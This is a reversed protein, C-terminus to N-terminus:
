QDLDKASRLHDLNAARQERVLALARRRRWRSTNQMLLAMRETKAEGQGHVAALMFCDGDLEAGATLLLATCSTSGNRLAEHLPTVNSGFRECPANVNAGHLLLLAACRKHGGEAAAHLPTTVNIPSAARADAGAELLLKVCRRHGQCAAAFLATHGNDKRVINIKAGARLLAAICAVRGSYAACYLATKGTANTANVDAGHALLLSVCEVHGNNAAIILPTDKSRYDGGENVASVLAGAALAAALCAKSGRASAVYLPTMGTSKFEVDAGAQLLANFCEVADNWQATAHLEHGSMTAGAKLLLRVCDIHAGTCANHLPSRGYCVTNVNAGAALLLKLVGTHGHTAAANVATETDADADDPLNPTAGAELLLTVCDEHGGWAAALLAGGGFDALAAVNAGAALLLKACGIHGDECAAYLATVGRSTAAEVDCGAAILQTLCAEHGGAAATHVPTKGDMGPVDINTTGTAGAATLVQELEASLGDRSAVWAAKDLKGDTLLSQLLTKSAERAKAVLDSAKTTDAEEEEEEEAEEDEDDYNDNTSEWSGKDDTDEEPFDGESPTAASCAVEMAITTPSHLLSKPSLFRQCSLDQLFHKLLKM